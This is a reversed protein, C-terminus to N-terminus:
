SLLTSDRARKLRKKRTNSLLAVADKADVWTGAAAMLEDTSSIGAPLSPQDLNVRADTTDCVSSLQPLGLKRCIGDLKKRHKCMAYKDFEDTEVAGNFLHNSWLVMSMQAGWFGAARTLKLRFVLTEGRRTISGSPDDRRSHASISEAAM